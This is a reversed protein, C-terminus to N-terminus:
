TGPRDPPVPKRRFVWTASDAYVLEYDPWFPDVIVNRSPISLVAQQSARNLFIWNIDQSEIWQQWLQDAPWDFRPIKGSQLLGFLDLVPANLYYNLYSGGIMCVKDGDQLQSNIYKVARYGSARSVLFERSAADVPPPGKLKIDGWVARGGYALGALLLIVWLSGNIVKSRVTREMMWRLSEYLALIVFPLAPLWYRLLHPFLFWYVTFSLAWLVPWRISRNWLAFLWSIPWAVILPFLTLNSEAQFREPYRLWDLSLLLFNGATRPEAANRLWSNTNEIVAPASWDGRGWQPFTPWLPNGTHYFIYAYWPIVFLAALAWGSILLGYSIRPQAEFTTEPEHRPGQEDASTRGIKARLFLWLGLASGVALFFLGPLKVGAAMGLLTMGLLWWSAEGTDSYRRLGYAGLFVFCVLAIDVYASEGLWLVLPNGLWFAALALGFLRRGQLRGWAYLGVATLMLFTHEMMQALVDDKLALGWAFLMHNLAPMVPHPSGMLAVIRHQLLFERALPLHHSVADWHFPPYQTTLLLLLWYGFLLGVLAIIGAGRLSVFERCRKLGRRLLKSGPGALQALAGLAGAVTLGLIVGPYLLRVLGLAFLLLAWTGLGLSLTFAFREAFSDFSTRRLLIRGVGYSALLILCWAGLHEAAWSLYESM